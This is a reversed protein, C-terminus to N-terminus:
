RMIIKKIRRGDNIIKSMEMGYFGQNNEIKLRSTFIGYKNNNKRTTYFKELVIRAHSHKTVPGIRLCVVDYKNYIDYLEDKDERNFEMQILDHLSINKCPVNKNIFEKLILSVLTQKGTNSDGRIYMFKVRQKQLVKKIVSRCVKVSNASNPYIRLFDQWTYNHFLPPISSRQYRMIKKQDLLCDCPKWKKNVLIYKRGQCKKCAM